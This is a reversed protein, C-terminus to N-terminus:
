NNRLFGDYQRTVMHSEMQRVTDLMVGVVILLSTGGFYFTVNMFKTMLPPVMSIAALFLAGCLTIRTVLRDIFDATKKGARIGPIFGGHKKLNEAMEVPNLQIATYFYTFFIVLLCYITLHVPHTYGMYINMTEIWPTEPFRNQAYQLALTPFMMVSSAFIVPIVGAMNVKLPIFSKLGGQGMGANRKTHQVPIKRVGDQMFVVAAVVLLCVIGIGLLRGLDSFRSFDTVAITELIAQPFTALIGATILLSMRNGIGKATMQEGLWMILATGATLTVVAMLKFGMGPYLVIQGMSELWVAIGFAQIAGLIVTGYKTYMNIKKRGETGEEKHLKELYPVVYVLLQMIISANIYPAIGLSFVSFRELAGGSFMNLFGLVGAQNAFLEKMALPDVGPTPIQCGLRFVAIMALSFLLRTRLEDIKWANSLIRFM